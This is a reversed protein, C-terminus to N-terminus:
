EQHERRAIGPSEIPENGHQQVRDSFQELECIMCNIAAEDETSMREFMEERSGGAERYQSIELFALGNSSRGLPNFQVGLFISAILSRWLHRWAAVDAGRVSTM